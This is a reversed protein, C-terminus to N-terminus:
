TETNKNCKLIQVAPAPQEDPIIYIHLKNVKSKVVSM